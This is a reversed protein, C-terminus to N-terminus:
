LAFQDVSFLTTVQLYILPKPAIIQRLQKSYQGPYPIVLERNILVAALRGWWTSCCLAPALRSCISYIMDWASWFMAEAAAESLLAARLFVPM